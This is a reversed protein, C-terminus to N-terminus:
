SPWACGYVLVLRHDGIQPAAELSSKPVRETETAPTGFIDTIAKAATTGVAQDPALRVVCAPYVGLARALSPMRDLPVKNRGNRLFTLMNANPFGAESAIEAQTKRHALNCIRDACDGGARLTLTVAPTQGCVGFGAATAPSPQPRTALLRPCPAAGSAESAMGGGDGHFDSNVGSGNATWAFHAVQGEKMIHMVQIGEGPNM